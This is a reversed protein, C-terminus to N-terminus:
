LHDVAVFPNISKGELGIDSVITGQTLYFKKKTLLLSSQLRRPIQKHSGTPKVRFTGEAIYSIAPSLPCKNRSRRESCSLCPGIEIRTLWVGAGYGLVCEQEGEKRVKERKSSTLLTTRASSTPLRYNRPYPNRPRVSIDDLSNSGYYNYFGNLFLTGLPCIVDLLLLLTFIKSFNKKWFSQPVFFSYIILM